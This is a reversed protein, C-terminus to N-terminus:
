GNSIAIPRRQRFRDFAKLPREPFKDSAGRDAAVQHGADPRDFDRLPPVAQCVRMDMRDQEDHGAIERFIAVDALFVPDSPQPLAQVAGVFASAAFLVFRKFCKM